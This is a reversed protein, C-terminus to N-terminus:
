ELVAGCEPLRVRRAHMSVSYVRGERGIWFVAAAFWGGGGSVHCGGAVRCDPLEVKAYHTAVPPGYHGILFPGSNTRGAIYGGRACVDM